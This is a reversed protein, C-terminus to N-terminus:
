HCEGPSTPAIMSGAFPQCTKGPDCEQSTLCDQACTGTQLTDCFYPAIPTGDSAAYQCQSPDGGNCTLGDKSLPACSYNQHWGDFMCREGPACTNSGVTCSQGLTTCVNDKCTGVSCTGCAFMGGCGDSVQGCNFSGCGQMPACCFHDFCVGGHCDSASLCGVCTHTSPDCVPLGPIQCHSNQTCAVCSQSASDCAPRDPTASCESDSTCGCREPGLQVYASACAQVCLQEAQQTTTWCVSNPGYATLAGPLAGPSTKALCSLYLECTPNIAAGDAAGGDKAGGDGTSMTVGAADAGAHCLGSQQFGALANQCAQDAAAHDTSSARSLTDACQSKVPEELMACCASIAKCSDPLGGSSSCGTLVMAALLAANRM